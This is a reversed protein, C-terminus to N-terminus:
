ATFYQHEIAEHVRALDRAMQECRVALDPSDLLSEDDFRLTALLKGVVRDAPSTEVGAPLQDLYGQIRNVGCLVSRPASRDFLLFRLVQRPVIGAGHVRRFNELSGVDRLLGRWRAFFLPLDIEQAPGCLAPWKAALLMLTRSTREIAEGLKMFTWGQDRSLTHEIAGLTTLLSSHTRSAAELASPPDPLGARRLAELEHFSENLNLFVERTIAERIARANERAHGLSHRVSVPNGDDLMFAEIYPVSLGATPSFDLPALSAGPLVKLLDDWEAQALKEDLGELEVSLESTVILLRAVNEARELYRGMWYLGGAARALMM